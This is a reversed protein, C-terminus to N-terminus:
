QHGQMAQKVAQDMLQAYPKLKKAKAALELVKPWHQAIVRGYKKVFAEPAVKSIYKLGKGFVDGVGPAMSILSIAAEFYKKEKLYWLANAGDAAEGAGPVFGAVDLATHGATALLGEQLLKANLKRELASPM